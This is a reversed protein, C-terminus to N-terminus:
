NSEQDSQTPPLPRPNDTRERFRIPRKIYRNGRGSLDQSAARIIFGAGKPHPDTEFRLEGGDVPDVRDEPPVAEALTRPLRGHRLKFQHVHLGAILPAVQSNTRYPMALTLSLAPELERLRANPRRRLEFSRERVRLPSITDSRLERPGTFFKLEYDFRDDSQAYWAATKDLYNELRAAATEYRIVSFGRISRLHGLLTLNPGFANRAAYVAYGHDDYEEALRAHAIRRNAQLVADTPGTYPGIARLMEILETAVEAPYRDEAIRAQIEVEIFLMIEVGSSLEFLQPSDRSLSFLGIARNMHNLYAKWDNDRAAIRAAFIQTLGLRRMNLASSIPRNRIRDVVRDQGHPIEQLAKLRAEDDLDFALLPFEVARDLLPFTLRVSDVFDRAHDLDGEIWRFYDDPSQRDETARVTEIWAELILPAANDEPAIGAHQIENLGTRDIKADRPVATVLMVCTHTLWYFAILWATLLLLM